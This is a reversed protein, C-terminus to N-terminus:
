FIFIEIESQAKLKCHISALSLLVTKPRTTQRLKLGSEPQGGESLLSAEAM